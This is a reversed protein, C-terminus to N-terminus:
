SALLFSIKAFCNKQRNSNSPVNVDNKVTLLGFSLLLVTSILAKRVIKAQHYFSGSGYRQSTSGSGLPGFVQPDPQLNFFIYHHNFYFSTVLVTLSNEPRPRRSPSSRTSACSCWQRLTREALVGDCSSGWYCTSCRGYTM